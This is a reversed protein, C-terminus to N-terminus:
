RRGAAAATAAQAGPGQAPAGQGQPVMVRGAWAIVLNKAQAWVGAVREGRANAFADIRATLDHVAIKTFQSAWYRLRIFHALFIPALLSSQFSDTTEASTTPWLYELLVYTVAGVVVRLLIFLEAYAVFTM